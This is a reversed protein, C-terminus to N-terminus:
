NIDLRDINIMIFIHIKIYPLSNTLQYNNSKNDYKVYSKYRKRQVTNIFIYPISISLYQHHSSNQYIFFYRM